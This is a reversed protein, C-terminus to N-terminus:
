KMRERLCHDAAVFAGEIAAVMDAGERCSQNALFGTLAAMAFKDRLESRKTLLDLARANSFGAEVLAAVADDFEAHNPTNAM